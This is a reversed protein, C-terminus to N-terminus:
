LIWEGSKLLPPPIYPIYNGAHYTENAIPKISSIVTVTPKQTKSYLQLWYYSATLIKWFTTDTAFHGRYFGNYCQMIVMKTEVHTIVRRQIMDRGIYYLHGGRIIYPQSLRRLKRQDQATARAPYTASQLLNIISGYEDMLDDEEELIFVELMSDEDSLARKRSATPQGLELLLDAQLARQRKEYKFILDFQQLAKLFHFVCGEPHAQNMAIKLGEHPSQVEVPFNSTILYHKYKICGYLLAVM